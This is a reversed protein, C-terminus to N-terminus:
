YESTYPLSYKELVELISVFVKFHKSQWVRTHTYLFPKMTKQGGVGGVKLTSFEKKWIEHGRVASFKM